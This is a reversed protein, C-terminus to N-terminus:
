TTLLRIITGMTQWPHRKCQHCIQRRYRQYWPCNAAPILMVLSVPPLIQWEQRQYRYIEPFKQFCKFRDWHSVKPAQPLQNMFFFRRCFIKHTQGKLSVCQLGQCVRPLQGKLDQVRSRLTVDETWSACGWSLTSCLPQTLPPPSTLVLFISLEATHQGVCRISALVCPGDRGIFAQPSPLLPMLEICRRLAFCFFLCLCPITPKACM